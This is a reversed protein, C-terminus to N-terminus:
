KLFRVVLHASHVVCGCLYLRKTRVSLDHGSLLQRVENAYRASCHTSRPQRHVQDYNRRPSSCLWVKVDSVLRADVNQFSRNTRAPAVLKFVLDDTLGAVKEKHRRANRVFCDVQACCLGSPGHHRPIMGFLLIKNLRICRLRTRSWATAPRRVLYLTEWRAPPCRAIGDSDASATVSRIEANATRIAM